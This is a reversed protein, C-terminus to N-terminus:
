CQLSMAVVPVCQLEMEMLVEEVHQNLRYSGVLILIVYLV